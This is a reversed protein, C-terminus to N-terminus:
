EGPKRRLSVYRRALQDLRKRIIWDFLRGYPPQMVRLLSRPGAQHYIARAHSFRKFGEIGFSYAGIGSRGVGGFPLDPVSYRFLADNVTVGGSFTRDLVLGLTRRNRTFIYLGLPKPMARLNACAVELDDYPLVTMVPGFIEETMARSEPPPDIVLHLALRGKEPDRIADRDGALGLTEVRAGLQRAQEVLSDVRQFHRTNVIGCYDLNKAAGPYLVAAAADMGRVLAECRSRPVLVLDPALCAQGGNMTKTAILEKAADVIDADPAIIVPCKGGLELTVPVLNLAAQAMVEAGIAPSGTFLLHDFPLRAFAKSVELGGRAVVVESADFYDTVAADLVEAMRPMMDSPCLMASNGAALATALPVLVLNLPGNWAGMIGIVGLPQYRIEARAGFVNFPAPAKRREPRMWRRVQKRADVFVQAPAFIEALTTWDRGRASFDQMLADLLKERYALLMALGRDLRDERVRLEVPQHALFAERQFRLKDLLLLLTPDNM